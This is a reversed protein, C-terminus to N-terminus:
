GRGNQSEGDVELDEQHDVTGLPETNSSSYTSRLSQPRDLLVPRPGSFDIWPNQNLISAGEILLADYRMVFVDPGHAHAVVLGDSADFFGGHPILGPYSIRWAPGSGDVRGLRLKAVVNNKLAFFWTYPGGSVITMVEDIGAGSDASNVHLLGFKRQLFVVMEASLARMDYVKPYAPVGVESTQLRGGDTVAPSRGAQRIEELLDRRDLQFHRLLALSEEPILARSRSADLTPRADAPIEVESVRVGIERLRLNVAELGVSSPSGDSYHLVLSSDESPAESVTDTGYSPLFATCSFVPRTLMALIMPNLIKM